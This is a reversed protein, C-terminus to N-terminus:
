KLRYVDRRAGASGGAAWSRIARGVFDDEGHERSADDQAARAAAHM